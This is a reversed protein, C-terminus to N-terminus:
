QMITYYIQLSKYCAHVMGDKLLSDVRLTVNNAKILLSGHLLLINYNRGFLDMIPPFVYGYNLMMLNQCGQTENDVVDGM